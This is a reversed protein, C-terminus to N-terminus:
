WDELHTPSLAGGHAMLPRWENELGRTRSRQGGGGSGMTRCYEIDDLDEGDSVWPLLGEPWFESEVDEFSLPMEVGGFVSTSSLVMARLAGLRDIGKPSSM